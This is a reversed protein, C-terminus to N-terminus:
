REINKRGATTKHITWDSFCILHLHSTILLTLSDFVRYEATNKFPEYICVYGVTM